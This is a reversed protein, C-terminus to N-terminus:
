ATGANGPSPSVERPLVRYISKPGHAHLGIKGDDVEYEYYAVGVLAPPQYVLKKAPDAAQRGFVVHWVGGGSMGGYSHPTLPHSKSGIAIDLYDHKGRKRHRDVAGFHGEYNLEILRAFGHSGPQLIAREGPLGMAVVFGVRQDFAEIRVDPEKSIPWFSKKARIEGICQPPLLVFALDPGTPSDDGDGILVPHVVSLPISFNHPHNAINLSMTLKATNPNRRAKHRKENLARQAEEAFLVGKKVVHSATLVGYCGDITAFTGSGFYRGAFLIHTTYSALEATIEDEMAKPVQGLKMMFGRKANM